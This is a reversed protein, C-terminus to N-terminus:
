LWEKIYDGFEDQNENAYDIAKQRKEVIPATDNVFANLINNIQDVGLLAVFYGNVAIKVTEHGGFKIMNDVTANKEICDECVGNDKAKDTHLHIPATWENCNDCRKAKVINGGCVCEDNDPDHRGCDECIYM